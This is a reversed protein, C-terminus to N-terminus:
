NLHENITSVSSGDFLVVIINKYEKELSKDFETLTKHQCDKVGFHNLVSSTISLFRRDYNTHTIM